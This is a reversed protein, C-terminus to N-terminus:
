HLHLALTKELMKEEALLERLQMSNDVIVKLSAFNNLAYELKKGLSQANGSRFVLGNYNDLIYDAIPNIDSTVVPLGNFVAEFLSLGFGEFRSPFVFLDYKNLEEAINTVLGALIVRNQLGYYEIKQELLFREEGEGYITCNWTLHIIEKLAELLIDYGKMYSLRGVSVIEIPKKEQNINFQRFFFPFKASSIGHPIILLENASVGFKKSITKAMHKSLVIWSQKKGKIIRLFFARLKHLKFEEPVLHFVIITRINFFACALFFPLGSSPWPLSIHIINPQIRKILSCTELVKKILIVPNKFSDGSHDYFLDICKINSIACLQELEKTDETINFAIFVECNLEKLKSALNFVYLECGGFGASPLLFLIRNSM